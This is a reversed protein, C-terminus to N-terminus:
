FKYTLDCFSTEQSKKKSRVVLLNLSIKCQSECNVAMFFNKSRIMTPHENSEALACRKESFDSADSAQTFACNLLSVGSSRM